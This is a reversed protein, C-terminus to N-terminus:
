KKFKGLKYVVYLTPATFIIILSFLIIIATILINNNEISLDTPFSSKASYITSKVFSPLTQLSFFLFYFTFLIKVFFYFQWFKVLKVKRKFSYIYLAILDITFIIMGVLWVLDFNLLRQNQPPFFSYIYSFLNFFFFIKWWM